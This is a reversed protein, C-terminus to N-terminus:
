HADPQNKNMTTANNASTWGNRGPTITISRIRRNRMRTTTVTM